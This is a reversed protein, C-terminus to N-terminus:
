AAMPMPPGPPPMSPAGGPPMGPPGAPPMGPPPAAAAAAAAAKAKAEDMLTKADEIHDHLLKIRDEPVEHQRCLNIFKGTRQVLLELNDFSDPAIYKGKTVMLDLNRDIIDTDATDLMSEAELDPLDFLRKFQEPTIAGSNLLETLQAFRAAPQKSLQSVPFVKLVFSERDSVLDKLDAWDIEEVGLKGRYRAKYSGTREVIRMATCIILWGLAVRFRERSRHYPLLRVDEFDEFVQLAKGSAQQLGAPVQSSAALTSIGNRELMSRPISDVYAYTSADVPQTVMPQPPIQGEWEMVFGAGKTGSTIERQNLMADKHASWGSVGMKQHMYQIKTTGKEYERQPALLSRMLSLGLVHRRRRRPVYLLIPWEKEDWPEDILTGDEGAVAVVHRGDHREVKRTAKRTKKEGDEDEYEEEYEEDVEERCTPPHWAEFIDVRHSSMPTTRLRWAQPKQAASLIAKRRSEATGVLGPYDDGERAYDDLVRYVDIGDRPVYYCCTPRGMRTEAEDFWVDEVALHELIVRDRGEIVKVAGAGHDTVLADMIVDEEIREGDNDDFVGEVAKGMEKARHRALYGGGNTLPMLAIKNKVVKAHVTEVANQAANYVLTEDDIPCHEEPNLDRAGGGYQFVSICKDTNAILTQQQKAMEECLAVLRPGAKQDRAGALFWMTDDHPLRDEIVSM